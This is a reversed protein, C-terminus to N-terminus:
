KAISISSLMIEIELEVVNAETVLQAEHLETTSKKGIVVNRYYPDIMIKNNAVLYEELVSVQPNFFYENRLRYLPGFFTAVEVNDSKSDRPTAVVLQFFHTQLKVHAPSMQGVLEKFNDLRATYEKIFSSIASKRWDARAKSLCKKYIILADEFIVEIERFDSIISELAVKYGSKFAGIKKIRLSYICSAIDFFEKGYNAFLGGKLVSRTLIEFSEDLLATLPDDFVHNLRLWESASLMIRFRREFNIYDFMVCEFKM